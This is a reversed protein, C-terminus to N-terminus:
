FKFNLQVRWSRGPMPYHAIISYDRNLINHMSFNVGLTYKKLLPFDRYLSAALDYYGAISTGPNHENTTWTQSAFTITTSANVWPNKWGLTASGSHLPLYAIQLSNFKPNNSNNRMRQLSYNSTFLLKHRQSLRYESDVWLDTGYGSTKAINMYRWVFMNFPVAVIKNRLHNAYVDVSSRLSFAKHHLSYRLGINIQNTSEPKLTTTGIHFYYLETMSPMRFINRFSLRATFNPLFVPTYSASLMPSLQQQDAVLSYLLKGVLATGQGVLVRASLSQLLSNRKPSPNSALTTTMSNHFYDASYSVNLRHCASYMLVTSVYYERQTYNESRIGASPKGNSYHQNSWYWRLGTKLSLTSSLPVTLSSQLSAIRDHLSEDNENVYLRVVGPLRRSDDNYSAHTQLVASRGIHFSHGLSAYFQQMSSNTRKERHTDIGNHVIFPYNNDARTYALHGYKLNASTQFLGWSGTSVSVGLDPKSASTSIDVVSACSLIRAPIFLREDVDATVGISSIGSLQFMQMDTQGSISQPIIMGNVAVGTHSSGIGRVSVTKMGGAGGYDRLTVGPLRRLASSVDTVNQQTFLSSHLTFFTNSSSNQQAFVTVEDIKQTHLTDTQAMIKVACVSVLFIIILLRKQM